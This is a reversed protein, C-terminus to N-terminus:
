LYEVSPPTVHSARVSLAVEIREGMTIVLNLEAEVVVIEFPVVYETPMLAIFPVVTVPLEDTSIGTIGPGTGTAAVETVIVGLLAVSETAKVGGVFRAPM